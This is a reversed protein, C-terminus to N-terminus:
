YPLWDLLLFGKFTVKVQKLYYARLWIKDTTSYVYIDFIGGMFRFCVRM